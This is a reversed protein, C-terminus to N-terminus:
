VYSSASLSNVFIELFSWVIIIINLDVLPQQQMSM